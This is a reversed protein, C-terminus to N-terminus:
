TDFLESTTDAKPITQDSGLSAKAGSPPISEELSERAKYKAEYEARIAAEKAEVRKAVEADLNDFQSLKEHKKATEYVFRAPSSHAQMRQILSPDDEALKLFASEKDEYDDHTDILIDRSIDIKTKLASEEIRREIHDTFGSQDDFVDPASEKPQTLEDLQKQLEQRKEKEAKHAYYFGKEKETLEEQPEPKEEAVPEKVDSEDSVPPTDENDGTSEEVEPAAEEQPADEIPEDSLLDETSYDSM